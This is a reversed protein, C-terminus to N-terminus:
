KKFLECKSAKFKESKSNTYTLGYNLYKKTVNKNNKDRLKLIKKQDCKITKTQEIERQHPIQNKKM